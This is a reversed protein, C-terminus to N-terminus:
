AHHQSVARLVEGSLDKRVKHSIDGLSLMGIVDKKSDTVPLRRIHKKEMVHIADAIDDDESCCVVNKTMVDRATMKDLDGSYAVARCTIDRDTIVGVLQSDSKVPIVGIDEKRMQTAVDRVPTDPTVCKVGVHMVNKVKM